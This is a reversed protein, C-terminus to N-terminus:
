SLDDWDAPEVKVSTPLTLEFQYAWGTALNNVLPAPEGAYNTDAVVRFGFLASGPTRCDYRIRKVIKLAIERAQQRAQRFAKPVKLDVECLISFGGKIVSRYNDAETLLEDYYQDLLLVPYTLGSRVRQNVENMSDDQIVFFRKKDPTHRIAAMQTALSEFYDIYQQETM